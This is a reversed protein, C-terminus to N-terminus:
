EPHPTGQSHWQDQGWMRLWRLILDERSYLYQSDRRGYTHALHSVPVRFSGQLGLAGDNEFCRMIRDVGETKLNGLRWWPMPEGANSFVNLEPTVLLTLTDPHPAFPQNEEVLEPIWDREARGLCARLTSEGHHERTKEALFPPIVALAEATPRLHEISFAEGDPAPLHVFAEFEHGMARVRQELELSQILSVFAELEPITCRTLFLQWRPKIGVELLRETALLSDRFSGSRRTFYDSNRELGFFSIQCVETGIDCAWQAYGEDNALRWISLLEFRVAAGEDSLEKELEWLQRYNPAFDPERYWTMVTLPRAFPEDEGPRIWERFQTVM